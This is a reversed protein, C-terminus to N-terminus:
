QPAHARPSAPKMAAGASAWNGQPMHFRGPGYISGTDGASASPNKVM